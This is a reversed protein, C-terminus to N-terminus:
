PYLGFIYNGMHPANSVGFGTVLDYGVAAPFGNNGSTVDFFLYTYKSLTPYGPAANAYLEANMQGFKAKHPPGQVIRAGMVAAYIGATVPCAVSTGGVGFYGGNGSDYIIVPTAPDAIAAVDPTARLRGACHPFGPFSTQYAPEGEFASCGGGSSSWGTETSRQASSTFDTPILRTGGVCTVFPSACPYSTPAAFDGSSFLLPTSVNYVSDFGNEGLFEGVGYSNSVINAGASISTAIAANLNTFAANAGEALIIQANPAMAHAYEIDLMTETEWGADTATGQHLQTFTCTPSAPVPITSNLPCAPLGMDTNFQNFDSAANAYYFADVIAITIGSGGHTAGPVTLVGYVSQLSGPCLHTACSAPTSAPSVGASIWIHPRVSGDRVASAPVVPQSVGTAQVQDIVSKVYASTGPQPTLPSQAWGTSCFPVLAAAVVAITNVISFRL